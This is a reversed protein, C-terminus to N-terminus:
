VRDTARSVSRTARRRLADEALERGRRLLARKADTPWDLGARFSPDLGDDGPDGHVIMAPLRRDHRFPFRAEAFRDAVEETV